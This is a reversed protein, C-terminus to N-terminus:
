FRFQHVTAKAILSMHVANCMGNMRLALVDLSNKLYFENWRTDVFNAPLKSENKAFCYSFLNSYKRHVHNTAIMNIM